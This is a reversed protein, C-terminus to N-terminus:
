SSRAIADFFDKAKLKEYLNNLPMLISEQTGRIYEDDEAYELHGVIENIAAFLADMERKNVYVRM